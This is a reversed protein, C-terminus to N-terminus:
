ASSSTPAAASSTCRLRCWPLTPTSVSEGSSPRPTVSGSFRARKSLAILRKRSAQGPEGASRRCAVLTHRPPPITFTDLSHLGTVRHPSNRRRWSAASSSLLRIAAWTCSASSGEGEAGGEGVGSGTPDTVLASAPAVVETGVGSEAGAAAEAAGAPTGSPGPAASPVMPRGSFRCEGNEALDGDGREVGEAAPDHHGMTPMGYAATSATAPRSGRGPAWPRHRAPPRARTCRHRDEVLRALRDDRQDVVDDVLLDLVVHDHRPDHLAGDEHGTGHGSTAARAPPVRSPM